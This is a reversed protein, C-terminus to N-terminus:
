DASGWRMWRDMPVERGEMWALGGDKEKAGQGGDKTQCIQLPETRTPIREDGSQVGVVGAQGVAEGGLEGVEEGVRVAAHHAAPREDYGFTVHGLPWAPAYGSTPRRCRIAPTLHLSGKVEVRLVSKRLVKLTLNLALSRSRLGSHPHRHLRTLRPQQGPRQEERAREGVRGDHEARGNPCGWRFCLLLPALLGLPGDIVGVGEGCLLGKGLVVM